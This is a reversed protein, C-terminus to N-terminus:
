ADDDGEELVARLGAYAHRKGKNAYRGESVKLFNSQKMLWDFDAIWDKKRGALFDSDEVKRFFDEWFSLDPYDKWRASVYRKRTKSWESVPKIRPLSPCLELFLERIQQFPVKKAPNSQRVSSQGNPCNNNYIDLEKDLDRDLEKDKTENETESVTEGVTEPVTESVTENLTESETENESENKSTYHSPKLKPGLDYVAFEKKSTGAVFNIIGFQQLRNRCRYFTARTLCAKNAIDSAALKVEGSDGFSLWYDNLSDVIAFFLAIDSPTLPLYRALKWFRRVIDLYTM